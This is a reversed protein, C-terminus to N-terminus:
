RNSLPKIEKHVKITDAKSSDVQEINLTGSGGVTVSYTHTSFRALFVLFCMIGMFIIAGIVSQMTGHFYSAKMSPPKIPEIANKILGIHNKNLNDEIQAKTEELTNDLFAQLIGSAVYKFNNVSEETDTVDHFPKLEDEDPEKGHEEKFHNIYEIKADKYLAYAIYGIIDGKGEVLHSYIFNYKRPM